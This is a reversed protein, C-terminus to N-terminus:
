GDVLSLPVYVSPCEVDSFSTVNSGAETWWCGSQILFLLLRHSCCSAHFSVWSGVLEASGLFHDLDKFYGALPM